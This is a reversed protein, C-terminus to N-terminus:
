KPPKQRYANIDIAPTTLFKRIVPSLEDDPTVTPNNWVQIRDAPTEEMFVLPREVLTARVKLAVVDNMTLTFIFEGPTHINPDEPLTISDETASIGVKRLAVRIHSKTLTWGKASPVLEVPLNLGRIRQLTIRSYKGLKKLINLSDGMAKMETNLDAINEPTPYTALRAQYLFNRWMKKPVKVIDGMIGLGDVHDTLLVEIETPPPIPNEIKRYIYHRSRLKPQKDDQYLNVSRVREVMQVTGNQRLLVRRCAILPLSLLQSCVTRSLSPVPM